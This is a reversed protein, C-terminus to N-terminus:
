PDGRVTGPRHAAATVRRPAAAERHRGSAYWRHLLLVMLLVDVVDGGYYMLQAGSRGDAAGVGAPPHAYLWRSLISHAAVVVILVGSRVLVSSRHPDPDVGVLSATLVYGWVLVHAHVASHVLVSGHMLPYLSTTYLVWLGGANMLGAVVPHTAARVPATRLLRTLRRGWTVPLARLALTVPAGLVLLLPALMGLLLHAAMHATFSTHAATAVPGVLGGGACVVGASWCVTRRAPWARGSGAVRRAAAYGVLATGLVLLVLVEFVEWGAVPVQSAPGHGDGHHHGRHM